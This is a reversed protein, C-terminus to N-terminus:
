LLRSKASQDYSLIIESRPTHVTHIRKSIIDVAIRFHKEIQLFIEPYLSQRLRSVSLCVGLEGFSGPDFHSGTSPPVSREGALRDSRQHSKRPSGATPVM